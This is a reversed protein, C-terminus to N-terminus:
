IDSRSMLLLWMKSLIVTQIKQNHITLQGGLMGTLVLIAEKYDNGKESSIQLEIQRACQQLIIPNEAFTMHNEIHLAYNKKRPHTRDCYRCTINGTQEHQSSKNKGKKKEASKQKVM